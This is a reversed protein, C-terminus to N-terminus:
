TATEEDRPEPEQPGRGLGGEPFPQFCEPLPQTGETVHLPRIEGNLVAPRLPM